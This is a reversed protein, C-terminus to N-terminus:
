KKVTLAYKHQLYRLFAKECLGEGTLDRILSEANKGRGIQHIEKNLWGTIQNLPGKEILSNLNSFRKELTQM